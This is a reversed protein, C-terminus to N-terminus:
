VICDLTCLSVLRDIVCLMNLSPLQSLTSPISGALRNNKMISCENCDNVVCLVLNVLCWSLKSRIRKIITYLMMIIKKEVTIPIIEGRIIINNLLVTCLMSITYNCHSYCKSSPFLFHYIARSKMTHFIVALFLFVYDFVELSHIYM